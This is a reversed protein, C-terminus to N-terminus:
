GNLWKRTERAVRVKQIAWVGARGVVRGVGGIGISLLAVWRPDTMNAAGWAVAAAALVWKVVILWREAQSHYADALFDTIVGIALAAFFVTIDITM